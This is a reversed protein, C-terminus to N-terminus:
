SSLAMPPPTQATSELVASMTTCVRQARLFIYSLSKGLDKALDDRLGDADAVAQGDAGGRHREHRRQEVELIRDGVRDGLEEVADEALVLPRRVALGLELRKHRQV